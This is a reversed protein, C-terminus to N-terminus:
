DKDGCKCPTNLFEYIAQEIVTNIEQGTTECYKILQDSIDVSLIIEDCM